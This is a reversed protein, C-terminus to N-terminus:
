MNMMSMVIHGEMHNVAVIPVDWAASIARAFNIGVWLCPELGPGVTVALADIAPREHRELFPVLQALLEPERELTKKLQPLYLSIDGYKEELAKADRLCMALAPVLNKAHERKAMAPFVGGYQEGLATQSSLANGLIKFNFDAGAKAARKPSAFGFEGDAELLAVGTDDCSTEIGLVRM